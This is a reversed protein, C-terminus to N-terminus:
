VVKINTYKKLGSIYDDETENIIIDAKTIDAINAFSVENLKSSDGLVFCEKALGMATKKVGAEEPDPTTYGFREHIGNVGIFCKDFRYAEMSVQTGHGVLARTKHKVLGGTLYTTIQYTYLAELHTLGNTVVVAQKDVLFPIMEYTTTGADLFICDNKDVLEAAYQGIRQKESQNKATKEPFSLELSAPHQLSAGGHVRKLRNLSELESLDRRITSESSSTAEVFEQIKVSQKETLLKLIMQHRDPTLM